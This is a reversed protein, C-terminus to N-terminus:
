QGAFCILNGDPDSVIFTRSGWPERRLPQHLPVGAAKYTEFLVEIGDVTIAASLVDRERARFRPTFAPRHVFRLDLRAGDRMVQAYFPPDGYSFALSFGLKDVFFDCAAPVDTVLIQPEAAMLRPEDRQTMENEQLPGAIRLMIDAAAALTAREADDLRERMVEALWRRRAGMSAGLARLGRPTLTIVHRRRDDQDIRREILADKEMRLLLRSLSQPQLGEARALAVASLPGSRYLTALLGLAGGTVSARASGRLARALRLVARVIRAEGAEENGTSM